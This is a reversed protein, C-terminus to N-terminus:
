VLYVIPREIMVMLGVFLAQQSLSFYRIRYYHHALIYGVFSMGAAHIGLTSGLLVVMLLGIIFCTGINVRNPVAMVWYLLIMLAWEPRWAQLGTSMPMVSLVLGMMLATNIAMRQSFRSTM